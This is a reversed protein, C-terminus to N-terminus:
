LWSQMHQIIQKVYVLGQRLHRLNEYFDKQETIKNFPLEHKPIKEYLGPMFHKTFWM